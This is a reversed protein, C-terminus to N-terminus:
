MTSEQRELSDVLSHLAMTESKLRNMCVHRMNNGVKAGLWAQRKQDLSGLMMMQSQQLLSIGEMM